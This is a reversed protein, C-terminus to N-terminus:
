VGAGLERHNIFRRRSQTAFATYLGHDLTARILVKHGTTKVNCVSLICYFGVGM